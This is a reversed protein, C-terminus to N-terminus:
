ITELKKAIIQFMKLKLHVKGDDNAFKQSFEQKKHPLFKKEDVYGSAGFWTLYYEVSPFTHECQAYDSHQVEFGAQQVIAETENKKVIKFPPRNSEVEVDPLLEPVRLFLEPIEELSSIAIRGGPKLCNFATQLFIIKEQEDLWHFVSSCYSVDYFPENRHPFDCSSDGHVFTINKYDPSHKQRAVDIRCGDPDVGVVLGDKGVISAIYATIEGTGCGIDVVKDGNKVGLVLILQKGIAFQQQNLQSYKIAM